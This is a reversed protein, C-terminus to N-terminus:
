QRSQGRHSRWPIMWQSLPHALRAPNMTEHVALASRRDRDIRVLSRVYFPADELTRVVAATGGAPIRVPRPLGWRSAPLQHVTDDTAGIVPHGAAGLTVPPRGLVDYRIEISDPSVAHM